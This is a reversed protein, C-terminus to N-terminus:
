AYADAARAAENLDSLRFSPALTRLPPTSGPLRTTTIYPPSGRRPLDHTLPPASRPFLLGPIPRLRSVPEGASKGGPPRTGTSERTSCPCKVSVRRNGLFFAEPQLAPLRTDRVDQITAPTLNSSVVKPNHARRAVLSSWGAGLSYCLLRARDFKNSFMPSFPLKASGRGSFM